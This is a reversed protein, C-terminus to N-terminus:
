SRETSIQGSTKHLQNDAYRTWSWANSSAFFGHRRCRSVGPSHTKHGPFRYALDCLQDFSRRSPGIATNCRQRTTPDSPLATFTPKDGMYLHPRQCTRGRDYLLRCRYGLLDCKRVRDSEHRPWYYDELDPPLRLWAGFRQVHWNCDSCVCCLLYATWLEEKWSGLVGPGHDQTAEDM